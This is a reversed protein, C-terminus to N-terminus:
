EDTEFKTGDRLMDMVPLHHNGAEFIKTVRDAEEDARQKLRRIIKPHAKQRIARDLLTTTRILPHTEPM